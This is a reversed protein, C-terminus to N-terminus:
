GMKRGLINNRIVEAVRQAEADLDARAETAQTQISKKEADILGEMEERVSNLRQQRTRVAEARQEELMRYSETRAERLTREYRTLSEDVRRLIGHAEDSSGRTRQDRGALVRGIPKYLTRNLIFVMAIIIAIHLFLTGDPVLQISEAFALFVM